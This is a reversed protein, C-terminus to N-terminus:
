RALRELEPFPEYAADKCIDRVERPTDLFRDLKGAVYVALGTKAGAYDGSSKRADYRVCVVYREAPAGLVTKRQPPSVGAGRIRSPDNLYTRMFALIDAKYNGPPINQAEWDAKMEDQTPELRTSSCAALIPVLLLIAAIALWARM